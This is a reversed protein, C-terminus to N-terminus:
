SNKENLDAGRVDDNTLRAATIHVDDIAAAPSLHFYAAHRRLLNLFQVRLPVRRGEVGIHETM